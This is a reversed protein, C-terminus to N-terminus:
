ALGRECLPPLVVPKIRGSVEAVSLSVGFVEALVEATLFAEVTGSFVIGGGGLGIVSRCLAAAFNLEHTAILVTHDTSLDNLLSFFQEVGAPDLSSTPEDLLLVPAAQALAAALLVRQREGSSLTMLGRKLFVECGARTAVEEINPRSASTGEFSYQSLLLFDRVTFDFQLELRQPVYALLRARSKQEMGSLNQGDIQISGNYPLAGLLCRLLTTKGAGNKGVLAACSGPQLSFSIDRLVPCPGRSFSLNEVLLTM